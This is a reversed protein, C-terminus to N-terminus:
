SRCGSKNGMGSNLFGIKSGCKAQLLDFAEVVLKTPLQELCESLWSGGCGEQDCRQCPLNLRVVQAYPNQWPGWKTDDSPGFIAVTPIKLASAMHIPVSDISILMKAKELLAGMEKLSTKGALSQVYPDGKFARMIEEEEHSGSLIIKEGRARLLHILEIFRHTPWHKYSCRSAPHIVIYDQYPLKELLSRRAEEPIVWVLDKTLPRIGLARILDLNRDVMHRPLKTERVIKTFFADKQKMGGGRAIGIREKAGSIKAVLAGRDGSTLNLVLDYGEKWIRWWMKVEPWVKRKWAQDFVLFRDIAPHGELMPLTEKYLYVDIVAEKYVARLNTYIPSTLLVDGHYKCICVLIKKM